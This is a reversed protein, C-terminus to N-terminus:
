RLTEEPTHDEAEFRRALTLADGRCRALPIADAAWGALPGRAGCHDCVVYYSRQYRRDDIPDSDIESMVGHCYPCTALEPLPDTGLLLTADCRLVACLRRLATLSPERRDTEYHSVMAPSACGMLAALQAQSLSRGLRLARIRTGLTTM